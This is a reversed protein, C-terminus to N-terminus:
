HSLGLRTNSRNHLDARGGVSDSAQEVGAVHRASGSARFSGTTAAAPVPRSSWNGAGQRQIGHHVGMLNLAM